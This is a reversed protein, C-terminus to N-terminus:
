EAAGLILAGLEYMGAIPAPDPVLGRTFGLEVLRDIWAGDNTIVHVPVDWRVGEGSVSAPPQHDGVLILLFDADPKERLFGAWYDYTYAVAGAYAPRWDKLNPTEDGDVGLDEGSYPADGIVSRWDIEYPPTPLFPMHTSITPFFVFVPKRKDHSLELADFRALSYQDPIRWWGFEPGRYDLADAGYIADFGYFSGEPWAGRLGPMLALARYGAARLIKPLTKRAQTLLLDYTSNESVDLGTMFSAHSLWSAGGFTPPDIFASAAHRGSAAIAGALGLRHPEVVAAVKPADFATAGYSEVFTLIVDRRELVSPEFSALTSGQPLVVPDPGELAEILFGAQRAYTQSVPISFWGLTPVSTNYGLLYLGVILAAAVALVRARKPECLAEAVTGLSWRFAAYIVGLGFVGATAALAVASLPATELMMAGVAPLHRADWYINVPRGYLAPATVEMYRGAAMILLGLTLVTLLRKSIARGSRAYLALVLVLTAVEVSIELRATIWPTPWVNHFSLAFNLVFLAM